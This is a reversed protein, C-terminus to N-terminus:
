GKSCNLSIFNINLKLLGGEEIKWKTENLVMKRIRGKEAVADSTKPYVREGSSGVSRAGKRYCFQAGYSM